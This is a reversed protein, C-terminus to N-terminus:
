MAQSRRESLGPLTRPDGSLDAAFLRHWGGAEMDSVDDAIFSLFYLGPNRGVFEVHYLGQLDRISPAVMLTDGLAGPRIIM